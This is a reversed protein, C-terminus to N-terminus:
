SEVESLLSRLAQATVGAAEQPPLAKIEASFPEATVPGDYGIEKLAKLYGKNDVVGTSGPLRRIHDVQEDVPIREPADSLHVYIPLNGPLGIIEALDSGSTYWHWSDMILGLDRSDVAGILELLGGLTHVFEYRHGARFTKPGIFEIALSQNYDNLIEMAQRIRQVHLDFNSAYSITDSYPLIWSLVRSAGIVEAVRALEPLVKIEDQFSLEDDSFGFHDFWIWGGIQMQKEAFLDKIYSVGKEVVLKTAEYIDVDIGAFGADKALELCEEM